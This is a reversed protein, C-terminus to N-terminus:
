PFAPMQLRPIPLVSVTAARLWVGTSTGFSSAEIVGEIEVADGEHVVRDSTAGLFTVGAPPGVATSPEPALLYAYYYTPGTSTSAFSPVWSVSGVFKPPYMYNSVMARLRARTGVALAPSSGTARHPFYADNVLPLSQDVLTGRSTALPEILPRYQYRAGVLLRLAIGVALTVGLGFALSRTSPLPALVGGNRGGDAFPAFVGVALLIHLPLVPYSIRDEPSAAVLVIAVSAATAGALFLSTRGFRLAFGLLSLPLLLLPTTRSYVFSRWERGWSTPRIRDLTLYGDPLLGYFATARWAVARLLWSPDSKLNSWAGDLYAQERRPGEPYREQYDAAVQDWGEWYRIGYLGMRHDTLLGIYMASRSALPSWRGDVLHNRLSWPVLTTALVAAVAALHKLRQKTALGRVAIPSLCMFGVFIAGQNRTNITLGLMLGLAAARMATPHSWYRAWAFLLGSVMPVYWNEIQTFHVTRFLPACYAYTLGALLAATRSGGFVTWACGTFAAVGIVALLGSVLQQVFFYHGTVYYVAAMGYQYVPMYGSSGLPQKGTLINMAFADYSQSDMWGSVDWWQAIPLAVVPLACMVPLLLSPRVGRRLWWIGGVALALAGALVAANPTGIPKVVPRLWVYLGLGFFGLV